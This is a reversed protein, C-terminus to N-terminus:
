QSIMSTTDVFEENLKNIGKEPISLHSSSKDDFQKMVKEIPPNCSKTSNNYDLCLCIYAGPTNICDPTETSCIHKNEFCEDIDRDCIPAGRWGKNCRGAPCHGDNSDCSVNSECHCERTCDMYWQSPSCAEVCEIGKSGAGCLYIQDDADIRFLWEGPIGIDSKDGLLIADETGSGPLTLYHLGPEGHFGIIADKNTSLKSYVIHAFTGYKESLILAIQFLNGEDNNTNIEQTNEWTIIVVSDPKYDKGYKYQINVENRTSELINPDRTERFWVKGGKSKMWYIAILPNELPFSRPEGIPNSNFSIAGDRSIYIKDYQIGLLYLPTSLFLDEVNKTMEYDNHEIGYQYLRASFIYPVSVNLDLGSERKQSSLTRKYRQHAAYKFNVHNFIDEEIAYTSIILLIFIFFEKPKM